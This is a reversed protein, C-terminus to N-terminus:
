ADPGEDTQLRSSDDTDTSEWRGGTVLQVQEEGLDLVVVSGFSDDSDSLPLVRRDIAALLQHLESGM